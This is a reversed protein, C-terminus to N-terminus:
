DYHIGTREKILSIEYEMDRMRKRIDIIKEQVTFEFEEKHIDVINLEETEQLKLLDDTTVLNGYIGIYVGDQVQKLLKSNWSNEPHIYKKYM